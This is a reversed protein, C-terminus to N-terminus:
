LFIGHQMVMPLVIYIDFLKKKLVRCSVSQTFNIYIIWVFDSLLKKPAFLDM